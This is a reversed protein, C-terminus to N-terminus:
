PAMMFAAMQAQQPCGKACHGHSFGLQAKYLLSSFSAHPPPPSQTPSAPLLTHAWM